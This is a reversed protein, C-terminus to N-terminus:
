IDIKYGIKNLCFCILFIIINFRYKCLTLPIKYKLPANFLKVKRYANRILEENSYSKFLLYSKFFESLKCDSLTLSMQICSLVLSGQYCKSYDEGCEKLIRNKILDREYIIKVKSEYFKHKKIYSNSLSENRWIYNYFCKHLVQVRKCYFLYEFNFLIDEGISVNTNFYIKNKKILNNNYVFRWVTPYESYKNLSEGKFWKYLKDFSSGLISPILKEKIESKQLIKQELKPYIDYISETWDKRHFGMFITDVKTNNLIYILDEFTGEDVYDDGDMFFIYEGNSYKIGTNRAESIGKNEQNIVIIRDDINKYKNIIELSNDTSGDNVCIIEVENTKQSILSKLCKELYNEINYIAVVISIKIM